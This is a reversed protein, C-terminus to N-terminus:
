DGNELPKMKLIIIKQNLKEKKNDSCGKFMSCMGGIDTVNNTNFNNLNLEKIFM